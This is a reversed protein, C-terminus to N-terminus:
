RDCSGDGVVAELRCPTNRIEAAVIWLHPYGVATQSRRNLSRMETHDQIVRDIAIMQRIATHFIRAEKDHQRESRDPENFYQRALRHMRNLTKQQPCAQAQKIKELEGKGLM